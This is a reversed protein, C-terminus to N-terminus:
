GHNDRARHRERKDPRQQLDQRQSSRIIPTRRIHRDHQAGPNIRIPSQGFRHPIPDPCRHLQVTLSHDLAQDHRAPRAIPRDMLGLRHAIRRNSSSNWRRRDAQVPFPQVRPGRCRVRDPHHRMSTPAQQGHTLEIVQRPDPQRVRDLSTLHARHRRPGQMGRPPERQSGENPLHRRVPKIVKTRHQRSVPLRNRSDDRRKARSGWELGM